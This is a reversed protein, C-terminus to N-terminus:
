MLSYRTIWPSAATFSGSQGMTVVGGTNTVTTGTIAQVGGAVNYRTIVPVMMTTLSADGNPDTYRVFFATGSPIFSAPTHITITQLKFTAPINDFRVTDGFVGEQDLRVTIADIDTQSGYGVLHINATQTGAANQITMKRLVVSAGGSGGGGPVNVTVAGGSNTATVGAGTFNISTAGTTLSTGEDLVALASGGGGGPINVIM